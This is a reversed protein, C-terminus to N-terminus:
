CVVWSFLYETGNPAAIKPNCSEFNGNLGKEQAALHFHCACIGVDLNQLDYPSNERPGVVKYFHFANNKKVVRWPQRNVASPALRLMELSYSYEGAETVTLPTNFDGCFFLEDFPKRTAAGSVSRFVGDILSRKNSPYGIPTIIPFLEDKAVDMANTFSTRNFTGAIWCTGIGMEAAFLVLKELTYGVATMAIDSKKVKVGLFTDAGKIVGYTGLRETNTGKKAELVRITIDAPFPSKEASLEDLCAIIKERDKSELSRKEYSRISRRKRITEELNEIKM